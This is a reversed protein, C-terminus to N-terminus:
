ARQLIAPDKLVYPGICMEDDKMIYWNVMGRIKSTPIKKMIQGLESEDEYAHQVACDYVVINKGAYIRKIEDANEQIWTFNCRHEKMDEKSTSIREPM